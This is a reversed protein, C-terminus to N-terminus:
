RSEARLQRLRLVRQAQRDGPERRPLQWVAQPRTAGAQAPAPPAVPLTSSAAPAAETKGAPTSACATLIVVVAAGLALKVAETANIMNSDEKPGTTPRGFISDCLCYKHLCL